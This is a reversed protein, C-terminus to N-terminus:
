RSFLPTLLKELQEEKFAGAHKAAIGGDPRVIVSYPLVGARNGFVRALEVGGMGAILLPFNIGVERAYARVRVPEDIAIGIFQLGRSAHREQLRIFVPIEERCPGCWTAWFNVVLLKGSWARLAQPKGDLGPLEVSKLAQAAKEVEEDASTRWMNYGFGAGGAALAVAATLVWERRTM